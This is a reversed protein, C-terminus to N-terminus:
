SILILVFQYKRSHNITSKFKSSNKKDLFNLLDYSSTERKEM